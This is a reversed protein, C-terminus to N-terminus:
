NMFRMRKNLMQKSWSTGEIKNIPFIGYEFAHLVTEIGYFLAYM